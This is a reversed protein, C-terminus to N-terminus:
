NSASLVIASHPKTLAGSCRTEILYKQANFDIDFDDFMNVAGGKDAGVNYDNLDVIVGYKGAPVISAPVKVIKEVGMATALEDISKYLRHGMGDELLLMDSVKDASAFYTTNGSGEYSDMAKVVTRIIAHGLAEDQNPTVTVDMAYLNNTTDNIIPIICSEDIKDDSIASRGDGFVFARALEEDLKTRMEAKLWPVVDFETIDVVDDRDLKQKKYVTTPSVTRKLLSFQEELKFNGKIYGRARAEDVTIDAFTMKVRSFPTHHVGNMVTKVWGSPQTNIFGPAGNSYEKADPFLYEINDIGHQLFADRMSGCRKADRLIEQMDSHSLVNEDQMNDGDFLNHKMDEEESEEKKADEVAMGILAYMVNKQEESMTDIVDQVTREKNETPMKKEEEVKVTEIEEKPEEKEAHYLSINEGTYIVGEEENYEGHTLVSDIYAGPNAGALVLSVERIVGHMVDGGVQKLKNAYISLGTIDGHQVLLKANQGRETDNFFGYAYVGEPRNELLAHGLVNDSDGHQHNWVLPVTQGDNEKFADKKITRGDSCKLDNRTAWGSFDYNRKAM